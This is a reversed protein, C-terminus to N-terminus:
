EAVVDPDIENDDVDEDEAALVHVEVIV